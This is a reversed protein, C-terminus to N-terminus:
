LKFRLVTEFGNCSLIQKLKTVEASRPADSIAVAWKVNINSYISHHLIPAMRLIHNYRRERKRQRLSISTSELPNLHRHMVSPISLGDDPM